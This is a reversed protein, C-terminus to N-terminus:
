RPNSLRTQNGVFTCTPGYNFGSERTGFRTRTHSLSLSLFGFVSLLHLHNLYKFNGHIKYSNQTLNDRSIRPNPPPPPPSIMNLLQAYWVHRQWPCQLPIKKSSLQLLILNLHTFELGHESLVFWTVVMWWIIMGMMKLLVFICSQAEM